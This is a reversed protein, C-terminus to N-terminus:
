PWLKEYSGGAIAREIFDAVSNEALLWNARWTDCNMGVLECDHSLKLTCALPTDERVEVFGRFNRLPFVGPEDLAYEYYRRGEDYRILREVARSGDSLQVYRLADPLPERHAFTTGAFLGPVILREVGTWSVYDWVDAAPHSFRYSVEFEAM